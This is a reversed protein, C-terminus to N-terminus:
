FLTSMGTNKSNSFLAKVAHLGERWGGRVLALISTSLLLNPPSMVPVTSGFQGVPYEIGYSMTSLILHQPFSFSAPVNMIIANIKGLLLWM